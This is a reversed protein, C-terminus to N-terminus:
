YLLAQQMDPPLQISAAGRGVPPLRNDRIYSMRVIEDRWVGKPLTDPPPVAHCPGCVARIQAEDPSQRAITAPMVGCALALFLFLGGRRM